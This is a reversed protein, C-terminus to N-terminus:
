DIWVEGAREGFKKIAIRTKVTTTAPECAWFLYTSPSREFDEDFFLLVKKFSLFIITFDSSIQLKNPMVM